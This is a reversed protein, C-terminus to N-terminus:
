VEQVEMRAIIDDQVEKSLEVFYASYTSVRVLLDRYKEPHNQADKLTDTSVINFQVFPGGTEFYARIMSVFKEIKSRDKLIDPNFRMNLVSGGTAKTHDIKAVSRLTAVPGRINRGQCPSIGGDARGMNIVRFNDSNKNLLGELKQHYTDELNVGAGMTFSDGIAGIIFKTELEEETIEDDRLGDSNITIPVNYEKGISSVIRDSTNPKLKWATYDSDEFVKPAVKKARLTTLQPYFIKFSIEAALFILMVVVVLVLINTLLAKIKRM